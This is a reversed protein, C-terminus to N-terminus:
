GTVLQVAGAGTSVAKATTKVPTHPPERPPEHPAAAPRPAVKHEVAALAILVVLTAYMVYSAYTGTPNPAYVGYYLALGATVAFVVLCCKAVLSWVRAVTKSHKATHASDVM